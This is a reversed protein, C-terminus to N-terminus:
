NLRSYGHRDERETCYDAHSEQAQDIERFFYKPRGTLKGDAGIKVSQGLWEFGAVRNLDQGRTLRWRRLSRGTLLGRALV